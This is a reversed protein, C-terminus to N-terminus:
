PALAEVLEVQFEATTGVTYGELSRRLYFSLRLSLEMHVLLYLVSLKFFGWPETRTTLIHHPIRVLGTRLQKM